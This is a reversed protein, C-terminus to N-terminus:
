LIDSLRISFEYPNIQDFQDGILDLAELARQRPLKPPLQRKTKRTMLWIVLGIASLVAFSIAFIIWRPTLSYEVQPAIDHFLQALLLSLLPSEPASLHM